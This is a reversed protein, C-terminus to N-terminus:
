RTFDVSVKWAILPRSEPIAYVPAIIEGKVIPATPTIDVDLAIMGYASAGHIWEYQFKVDGSLWIPKAFVVTGSKAEKRKVPINMSFLDKQNSSVKILTGPSSADITELNYSYGRILYAWTQGPWFAHTAHSAHQTQSNCGPVNLITGRGANVNMAGAFALVCLLTQTNTKM